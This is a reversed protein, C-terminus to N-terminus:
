AATVSLVCVSVVGVAFIVSAIALAMRRYNTIPKPQETEPSHRSTLYPM